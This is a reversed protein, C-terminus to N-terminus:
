REKSFYLIWGASCFSRQGIIVIQRKTWHNLLCVCSLLSFILSLPFCFLLTPHFIVSLLDKTKKLTWWWLELRDVFVETSKWQGPTSISPRRTQDRSLWDPTQEAERTTMKLTEFGRNEDQIKNIKRLNYKKKIERESLINSHKTM